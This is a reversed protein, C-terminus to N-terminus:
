KMKGLCDTAEDQVDQHKRPGQVHFTRPCVQIIHHLFELAVTLSSGSGDGHQELVTLVPTIRM